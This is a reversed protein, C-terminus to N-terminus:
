IYYVYHFIYWIRIHLTKYLITALFFTQIANSFNKKNNRQSIFDASPLSNWHRTGSRNCEANVSSQRTGFLQCEACFTKGLTGLRASPLDYRYRDECLTVNTAVPHCRPLPRTRRVHYDKGLACQSASPLSYHRGRQLPRTRAQTACTVSTASHQGRPVRCLHTRRTDQNLCEAFHPKASHWTAPVRCLKRGGLTTQKGLTKEYASPLYYNQRTSSITCEAYGEASPM